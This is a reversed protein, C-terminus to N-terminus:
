GEVLSAPVPFKVAATLADSIRDRVIKNAIRDARQQELPRLEDLFAAKTKAKSGCKDFWQQDLDYYKASQVATVSADFSAEKGALKAQHYSDPFVV